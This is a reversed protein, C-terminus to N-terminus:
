IVIKRWGSGYKAIMVENMNIMAKNYYENRNKFEIDNGSDYTISTKHSVVISYDVAIKLGAKRAIYCSDYDIGWGYSFNDDFKWSFCDLAKKTYIPCIIDVMNCYINDSKNENLMWPYAYNEVPKIISPHLVGVDLNHELFSSMKELPDAETNLWVDNTILWVLDSGKSVELCRNMGGTLRKNDEFRHTTTSPIKSPISGNDIVYLNHDIKIKKRLDYVLEDTM